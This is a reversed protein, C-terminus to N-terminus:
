DFKRIFSYVKAANESNNVIMPWVYPAASIRVWSRMSIRKMVLKSAWVREEAFKLVDYSANSHIQIVSTCKSNFMINKPDRHVNHLGVKMLTKNLNM